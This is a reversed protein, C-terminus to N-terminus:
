FRAPMLSMGPSGSTIKTISEFLSAIAAHLFGPTQANRHDCNDVGVAIRVFDVPYDWAVVVGQTRDAQKRALDRIGHNFAASQGGFMVEGGILDLVVLGRELVDRFFIGCYTSGFYRSCVMCSLRIIPTSSSASRLGYPDPKRFRRQVARRPQLWDSSVENWLGFCPLVIASFNLALRTFCSRAAYRLRFSPTCSRESRLWLHYQRPPLPTAYVRYRTPQCSPKRCSLVLCQQGRVDVRSRLQAHQHFHVALRIEYGARVIKLFQNPVDRHMDRRSRDPLEDALFLTVCAAM